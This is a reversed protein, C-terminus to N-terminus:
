TPGAQRGVRNPWDLDILVPAHDSAKPLARTVRDVRAPGGGLLDDQADAEAEAPEELDAVVVHETVLDVEGALEALVGGIAVLDEGGVGDM